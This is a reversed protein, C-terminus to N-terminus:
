DGGIVNLNPVECSLVKEPYKEFEFKAFVVVDERPTMFFRGTVNPLATYRHEDCRRIGGEAETDILFCFESVALYEGGGSEYKFIIKTDPLFQLGFGKDIRLAFCAISSPDNSAIYRFPKMNTVKEPYADLLWNGSKVATIEWGKGYGIPEAQLQLTLLIIILFATTKM